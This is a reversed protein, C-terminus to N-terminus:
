PKYARFDSELFSEVEREWRQKVYALHNPNNNYSDYDKQSDFLMSLAFNFDNKKGVQRLVRFSKAVEIKSLIDYSDKLFKKEEPSDKAHKLKFMVTHLIKEGGLEDTCACLLGASGALATNKIFAKRNM